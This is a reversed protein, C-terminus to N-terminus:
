KRAVSAVRSKFRQYAPTDRTLSRLVTPDIKAIEQETIRVRDEELPHSTFWAEVASPRSRREELVTRFM